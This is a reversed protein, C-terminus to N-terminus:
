AAHGARLVERLRAETAQSTPVLFSLQAACSRLELLRPPKAVFLREFWTLRPERPTITIDEPRGFRVVAAMDGHPVFAVDGPGFYLVGPTISRLAHWIGAPLRHTAYLEPPPDRVLPHSGAYVRDVARRIARRQWLTFLTGFVFGGVVAVLFAVGGRGIAEVLDRRVPMFLSFVGMPVGWGVAMLIPLRAWYGTEDEDYASRPMLTQM